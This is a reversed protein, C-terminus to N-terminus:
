QGKTLLSLQYITFMGVIKNGPFHEGAHNYTFNLM